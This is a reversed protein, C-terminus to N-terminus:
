IQEQERLPIKSLNVNGIAEYLEQKLGFIQEESNKNEWCDYLVAWKEDDDINNIELKKIIRDILKESVSKYYYAGFGFMDALEAFTSPAAIHRMRKMLILSDENFIKKDNLLLEWNEVNLNTKYSKVEKEKWEEEHEHEHEGCCCDDNHHHHHELHEEINEIYKIIEPGKEVDKLINKIETLTINTM